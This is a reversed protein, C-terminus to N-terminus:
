RDLEFDGQRLALLKRSSLHKPQIVSRKSQSFSRRNPSVIGVAKSWIMQSKVLETFSNTAQKSIVYMRLIEFSHVSLDGGIGLGPNVPALNTLWNRMWTDFLETDAEGQATFEMVVKLACVGNAVAVPPTHEWTIREVKWAATRTGAFPFLRRPDSRQLRHWHRWRTPLSELRPRLQYCRRTAEDM